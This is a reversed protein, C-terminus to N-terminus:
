QTKEVAINRRIESGIRYQPEKKAVGTTMPNYNGPGPKMAEEKQKPAYTTIAGMSFVPGDSGTFTKTAYNGPGPSMMTKFGDRTASGFGFKPSARMTSVKSGAYAGPGPSGAKKGGDISIRSGTGFKMTPVSRRVHVEYNGPGPQFNRNKFELDPLKSGM